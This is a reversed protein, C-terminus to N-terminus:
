APVAQESAPALVRWSIDQRALVRELARRVGYSSITSTPSDQRGGRIVLEDTSDIRAVRVARQLEGGAVLHRIEDAWRDVHVAAKGALQSAPFRLAYPVQGFEKWRDMAQWTQPDWPDMAVALAAYPARLALVLALVPGM